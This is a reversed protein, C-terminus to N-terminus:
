SFLSHSIVIVYPPLKEVSPSPLQNVAVDDEDVALLNECAIVPRKGFQAKRPVRPREKSPHILKPLDSDPILADSDFSPAYMSRATGTQHAVSQRPETVVFCDDDMVHCYHYQGPVPMM